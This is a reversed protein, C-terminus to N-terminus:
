PCTSRAPRARHHRDCQAAPSPRVDRLRRVDVHGVRAARPGAHLPRVRRDRDARRDRPRDGRQVLSAATATYRTSSPRGGAGPAPLGVVLPVILAAFISGILYTLWRGWGVKPASSGSWSAPSRWRRWSTPSRRRERPRAGRRRHGLGDDRVPAHRARADALGRGPRAPDPANMPGPDRRAPARAHRTPRCSTSPSRTGCPARGSPAAGGRRGPRRRDADGAVAAAAERAAREYAAADVRSRSAPSAARASARSRGSGPRTSRRRHHRGRDDRAAAARGDRHADRRAAREGDAEVAALLQMIKLHQRGGRDAPLFATRGANVTMGVARNEPSRRTPSRRRPASRSRPRPSTAAGAQRDRAPPRPHDVRRRDARPRVGQGPDRRAPRDDELPDPEHQRGPRVAPGHDRAADDPADAGPSAHSGELIAAPLRWRPCRSSARTSSWRRRGARGDGAAEFFGFPDGTRIHLPEIRFHGRRTLPSASSGPGSAGAARPHDGAGAPRGAADDPQPDGALAEAAPESNRLTYTVRMRDGVHGHLQSVAYGAELDTLGLRVLVYRAASSSSRRPLAPLLPVALGTSFAAVVLITAVILVQLRRIM